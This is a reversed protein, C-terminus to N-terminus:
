LGGRCTARGRDGEQKLGAFSVTALRQVIALVRM